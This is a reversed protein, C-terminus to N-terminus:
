PLRRYNNNKYNERALHLGFETPWGVAVNGIGTANTPHKYRAQVRIATYLHGRQFDSIRDTYTRSYVRAFTLGKPYINIFGRRVM